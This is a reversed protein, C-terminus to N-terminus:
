CHGLLQIFPLVIGQVKQIGRAAEKIWNTKDSNRCIIHTRTWKYIAWLQELETMDEKLINALVKDALNNLEEETM